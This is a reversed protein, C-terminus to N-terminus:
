PIQGNAFDYRAADLMVERLNAWDEGQTFRSYGMAKAEYGGKATQTVEFFIRSPTCNTCHARTSKM